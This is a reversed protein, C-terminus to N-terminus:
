LFNFSYLVGHGCTAYHFTRCYFQSLKHLSILVSESRQTVVRLCGWAKRELYPLSGLLVSPGESGWIPFASSESVPALVESHILAGRGGWRLRQVVEAFGGWKGAGEGERPEREM